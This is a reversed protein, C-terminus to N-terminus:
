WSGTRPDNEHEAQEVIRQLEAEEDALLQAKTKRKVADAKPKGPVTPADVMRHENMLRERQGAYGNHELFWVMTAHATADWGAVLSELHRNYDGPQLRLDYHAKDFSMRALAGLLRKPAPQMASGLYSGHGKSELWMCSTLAEQAAAVSM